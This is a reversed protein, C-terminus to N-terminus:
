PGPRRAGRRRRLAEPDLRMSAGHREGPRVGAHTPSWRNRIPHDHKAPRDARKGAASFPGDALVWGPPRTGPAGGQMQVKKLLRALLLNNLLRSSEWLRDGKFGDRSCLASAAPHGGTFVRGASSSVDEGERHRPRQAAQGSFAFLDRVCTRCDRALNESSFTPGRFPGGGAARSARSVLLFPAWPGAGSSADKAGM